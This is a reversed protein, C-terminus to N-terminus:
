MWRKWKLLLWTGLATAVLTGLAFPVPHALEYEPLKFNMGWYSTLLTLPLGVTALVTLRKIIENLQNSVISVHLELLTAAEDRFSDLLDTVRALRDYVDRVYPRLEAPIASFEDRTLALITDRQPGVVRRLGSMGRKLRFISQHVDTGTETFVREELGDIEEAVMDMIPLYHDVLVDLLFHLLKGPGECLLEPRRPLVELAADVSRTRGEHCTILCTRSVVIDVERLSPRDEDWRASHVVLYLYTGYNDVKPRNIETVIDDLVLEHIGLPALAARISREPESEFDLWVPSQHARAAALAEEAAVERVAAGAAVFARIM